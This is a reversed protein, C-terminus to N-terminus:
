KKKKKMEKPFLDHPKERSGETGTVAGNMYAPCTTKRGCSALVFLVLLLLLFRKMSVFYFM